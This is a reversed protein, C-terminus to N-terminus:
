MVSTICFSLARLRTSAASMAFFCNLPAFGAILPCPQNTGSRSIAAAYAQDDLSVTRRPTRIAVPDDGGAEGDKIEAAIATITV